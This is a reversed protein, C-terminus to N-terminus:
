SQRLRSSESLGSRRTSGLLAVDAERPLDAQLRCVAPRLAALDGRITQGLLWCLLFGAMGILGLIGFSIPVSQHKNMSELAPAGWAHLLFGVSLSAVPLVALLGFNVMVPRAAASLQEAALPDDLNPPILRPYFSRVALYTIFFYTLSSAILGCFAQSTIFHVFDQPAVAISPNALKLWTPFILSTTLWLALSVRWGIQGLRLCRRGAVEWQEPTLSEGRSVRRLAMWVPWFFYVMCFTGLPYAIMNVIFVQRSQFLEEVDQVGFMKVIASENYRINLWSLLANPPVGAIVVALMPWIAATRRWSQPALASLSRGLPFRAALQRWRDEAPPYLLDHADSLCLELQRALQGADAFRDAPDPALCRLLVHRLGPPCDKPLQRMAEAPVGRRRKLTMDRITAEIGQPLMQDDFPRAGVLMEWLVVGLSYIDSRGDMEEPQRPHNPDYAELQEPSMYTLSGGFFERPSAGEVQSSFSINFDALKPSGEATLLVNAPKVDRHLVGRRHAYDLAAALSAGMRCVTEAWTLDNLARQAFAESPLLEGRRALAADIVELVLKGSRADPPRAGAVKIVDQLTGGPIYQMYLLMLHRDPLARQDYVRVIHPHDLQALTQPEDSQDASVKLAVFRQMSVQRALFVKAFAGAGLEKILDFDDLQQGPQVEVSGKTAV